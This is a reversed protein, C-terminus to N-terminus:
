LIHIHVVLIRLPPAMNVYFSGIEKIAYDNSLM